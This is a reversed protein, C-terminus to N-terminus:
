SFLLEAMGPPENSLLGAYHFVELHEAVDAKKRKGLLHVM